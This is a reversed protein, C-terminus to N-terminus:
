PADEGGELLTPEAGLAERLLRAVAARQEEGCGPPLTCRVGTAATGAGSPTLTLEVTVDVGTQELCQAELGACLMRGAERLVAEEASGLSVAQGQPLAFSGLEAGLGPLLRAFVVLIYLGAVAKICQRTWGADTLRSVLEAGVCATCFVATATQLEQM